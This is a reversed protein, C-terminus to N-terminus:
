DVDAAALGAVSAELFLARVYINASYSTLTKVYWNNDSGVYPVVTYGNTTWASLCIYTAASIGFTHSTETSLITTNGYSLAAKPIRDAGSTPYAPLNGSHYATGGNITINSEFGWKTGDWFLDSASYESTADIPRIYTAAGSSFLRLGSKSTNAAIGDRGQTPLFYISGTNANPNPSALGNDGIIRIQSISYPDINQIQASSAALYLRKSLNNSNALGIVGFDYTANAGDVDFGFYNAVYSSSGSTIDSISSIRKRLGFGNSSYLSISTNGTIQLFSAPSGSHSNFNKTVNSIRNFSSTFNDTQGGYLKLGGNGFINTNSTQYVDGTNGFIVLKLAGNQDVTSLKGVKAVALLSDWATLEAPVSAGSLSQNIRVTGSSVWAGPNSAVAYTITTAGISTIIASVANYGNPSAGVVSITRGAAISHAGITLTAYGAAWSGATVVYEGSVGLSLRIDGTFANGDINSASPAFGGRHLYQPAINMPITPDNMNSSGMDGPKMDKLDLASIQQGSDKGHDHKLQLMKAHAVAQALSVGQSFVLAIRQGPATALQALVGQAYSDGTVTITTTSAYTFTFNGTIKESVNSGSIRYMSISNSPFVSNFGGGTTLDPTTMFMPLRYSPEGQLYLINERTGDEPNPLTLDITNSPTAPLTITFTPGAGSVLCGNVVGSAIDALSPIVNFGDNTLFPSPYNQSPIYKITVSRVSSLLSLNDYFELTRTGVEWYYKGTSLEARSAAATYTSPDNDEVSVFSAPVFDLMIKTVHSNAPIDHVEGSNKYVYQVSGALTDPGWPGSFMPTLLGMSGIARGVSNIFAPSKVNTDEATGEIDGIASALITYVSLEYDNDLNLTEATLITGSNYTDPNSQFNLNDNAM